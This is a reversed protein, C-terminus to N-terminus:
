PWTPRPFEPSKEAVFSPAVTVWTGGRCQLLYSASAENRGSQDFRAPGIVTGFTDAHLEQLLASRDFRGTQKIAREMVQGVAYGLAVGESISAGGSGYTARYAAVLAASGDTAVQPSWLASVFIGESARAGIDRTFSAAQEPPLTLLLAQPNYHRAEFGRVLAESASLSAGLVVVQAESSAIQAALLGLDTEGFTDSVVTQMGGRELFKRAGEVQGLLGPDDLTAYAVTAPRQALPISLLTYAFTYLRKSLPVPLAALTSSGSSTFIGDDAYESAEPFAYGLPATVKMAPAVLQPSSPGFLLDVHQSVLRRYNATVQQQEGDDPLLLLKVQRGLLGGNKNVTDAWLQYGQQVARGLAAGEGSLTLSAGITIPQPGQDPAATSTEQVCAALALLLVTLIVAQGVLLRVACPRARHPSTTYM